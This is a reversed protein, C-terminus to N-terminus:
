LGHYVGAFTEGLYNLVQPETKINLSEQRTTGHYTTIPWSFEKIVYLLIYLICSLLNLDRAWHRTTKGIDLSSWSSWGALNNGGGRVDARRRHYLTATADSYEWESTTVENHQSVTWVCEQILEGSNIFHWCELCEALHDNILKNPMRSIKRWQM